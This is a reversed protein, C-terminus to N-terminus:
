IFVKSLVNKMPNFNKKILLIQQAIMRNNTIISEFLEKDKGKSIDFDTISKSSHHFTTSSPISNFSNNIQIKSPRKEKQLNKRDKSLM